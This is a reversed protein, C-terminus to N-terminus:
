ISFIGFSKERGTLTNAGPNGSPLNEYWFYWIPYKHLAKSLFINTYIKARKFTKRGNPINYPRKTYKTFTQHIEGTKTYQALFFRAVKTLAPYM